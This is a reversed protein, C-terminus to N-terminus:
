LKLKILENKMKKIYEKFKEEDKYLYASEEILKKIKKNMNILLNLLFETSKFKLITKVFYEFNFCDIRLTSLQSDSIREILNLYRCDSIIEILTLKFDKYKALGGHVGYKEYYYEYKNCSKCFYSVSAFSYFRGDAKAILKYGEKELQAKTKKAEWGDCYGVKKIKGTKENFMLMVMVGGGIKLTQNKM